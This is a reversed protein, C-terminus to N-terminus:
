IKKHIAETSIASSSMDSEDTAAFFSLLVKVTNLQTNTLPTDTNTDTNVMDQPRITLFLGRLQEPYCNHLWTLLAQSLTINLWQLQYAIVGLASEQYGTQFFYGKNDWPGPDPSKKVTEILYSNVLYMCEITQNSLLCWKCVLHEGTQNVTVALVNIQNMASYWIGLLYAFFDQMRYELKPLNWKRPLLWIRLGTLINQM